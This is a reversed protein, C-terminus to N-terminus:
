LLNSIVKPKEFGKRSGIIPGFHQVMGKWWHVSNLVLDTLKIAYVASCGHVYLTIIISSCALTSHTNSSVFVFVYASSVEYGNCLCRFLLFLLYASPCLLFLQRTYYAFWLFASSTQSWNWKHEKPITMTHPGDKKLKTLNTEVKLWSIALHM